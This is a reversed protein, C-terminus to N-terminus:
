QRITLTREGGASKIVVGNSQVSVLYIGYKEEGPQLSFPNGDAALVAMGNGTESLLIGKLEIRKGSSGGGHAAVIGSQVTDGQVQATEQLLPVSSREEHGPSFPNRLVPMQEASVAGRVTVLGASEKGWVREQKKELEAAPPAGWLLLWGGSVFGLMAIGVICFVERARLERQLWNRMQKM